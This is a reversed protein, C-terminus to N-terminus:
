VGLEDYGLYDTENSPYQEQCVNCYYTPQYENVGCGGLIVKGADALDFLEGSPFGYVFPTM